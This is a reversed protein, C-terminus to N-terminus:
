KTNFHFMKEFYQLNHEFGQMGEKIVTGNPLRKEKFFYDYLQWHVFCLTFHRLDQFFDPFLNNPFQFQQKESDWKNQVNLGYADGKGCLPCIHHLLVKIFWLAFIHTFYKM